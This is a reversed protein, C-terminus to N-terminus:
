TKMSINRHWVWNNREATELEMELIADRESPKKKVHIQYGGRNPKASMKLDTEKTILKLPRNIIYQRLNSELSYQSGTLGHLERIDEDTMNWYGRPLNKYQSGKLYWQPAYKYGKVKVFETFDFQTFGSTLHMLYGAMDPHFQFRVRRKECNYDIVVAVGRSSRGNKTKIQLHNDMMEICRQVYTSKPIPVKCGILHEYDSCVIEVDKLVSEKRYIKTLTYIWLLLTPPSFQFRTSILCNDMVVIRNQTPGYLNWVHIPNITAPTTVTQSTVLHLHRRSRRYEQFKILTATDLM